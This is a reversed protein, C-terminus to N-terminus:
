EILLENKTIITAATNTWNGNSFVIIGYKEHYFKQGEVANDIPPFVFDPICEGESYIGSCSGEDDGGCSSFGLTLCLLFLISLLKKM